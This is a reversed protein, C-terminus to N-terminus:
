KCCFSEACERAKKDAEFVDKLDRVEGSWDSSLVKGVTESIGPFSLRGDIFAQVAVENAANYAITFSKNKEAAMYAISLMPFDKFRPREFTLTRKGEIGLILEDTLDFPRMFNGTIEPWELAQLIPHKMDPESLQAYVIGDKTRILSHVVSQPHIVVKIDAPKADFLRCAEIVELGKNGLTASDITIKKGMNWTPHKLADNVTVTLLKEPPFTRFPGGSATIIIKDLNAKGFKNILTFVASHESDVPLIQSGTKKAIGSIVPWAMVVSEKNALALNIGAELVFVSPLLGASGAIGNIVIDPKTKDILRKISDAGEESVLTTPCNFEKGLSELEDRKSFSTLGCVTFKEKESRLIEVSSKGISGTAGLILVKKM